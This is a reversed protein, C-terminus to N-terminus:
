LGVHLSQALIDGVSEALHTLRGDKGQGGHEGQREADAGRGRDEGEDVGDHEFRQRHDIRGAEVADALPLVAADLAARLVFPAHEGIGEVLEHLLVRRLEGLQGRKLGSAACILARRLSLSWMALGSRASNTLPM